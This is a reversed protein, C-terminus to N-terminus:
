FRDWCPSLFEMRAACDAAWARGRLSLYEKDAGQFRAALRRLSDCAHDVVSTVGDAVAVQVELWRAAEGPPVALDGGGRGPSCQGLAAIVFLVALKKAWCTRCGIETFLSMGM